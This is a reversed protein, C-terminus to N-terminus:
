DGPEAAPEATSGDVPAPTPEPEADGGIIADTIAPVVLDLQWPRAGYGALLDRGESELVPLERTRPPEWLVRRLYDPTLLNELPVDYQESIAQMAPRALALRRAAVPDRDAWTRPTPPGDGRPGRQPLESEPMTRASEVAEAWRNAYREAGRGHFGKTALLAAKDAPM